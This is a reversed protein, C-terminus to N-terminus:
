HPQLALSAELQVRSATEKSLLQVSATSGLTEPDVANRSLKSGEVHGGPVKPSPGSCLSLTHM